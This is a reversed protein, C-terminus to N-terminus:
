MGSSYRPSSNLLRSLHGPLPLTLWRRGICTQRDTHGVRAGCGQLEPLKLSGCKRVKYRLPIVPQRLSRQPIRRCTTECLQHHRGPTNTNPRHSSTYRERNERWHILM